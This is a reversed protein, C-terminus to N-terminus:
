QETANYPTASFNLQPTQIDLTKGLDNRIAAPRARVTEPHVVVAVVLGVVPVFAIVVGTALLGAGFNGENVEGARLTAGSRACAQMLLAAFLYKRGVRTMLATSERLGPSPEVCTIRFTSKRSATQVTLEDPTTFDTISVDGFLASWIAASSAAAAGFATEFFVVSLVSILVGRLLVEAPFAAPLTSFRVFAM